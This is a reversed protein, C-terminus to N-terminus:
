PSRRPPKEPIVSLVILSLGVIGVGLRWDYAGIAIALLAIGLLCAFAELHRDLAVAVSARIVTRRRRPSVTRQEPTVVTTM